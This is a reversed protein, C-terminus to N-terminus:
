NRLNEGPLIKMDIELDRKSALTGLYLVLVSLTAALTFLLPPPMPKAWVQVIIELDVLIVLSLCALFIPRQARLALLAVALPFILVSWDYTLLRPAYTVLPVACVVANLLHWQGPLLKESALRWVCALNIIGFLLTIGYIAAKVSMRQEAPFYVLLGAPLSGVLHEPNRVIGGSYMAEALRLSAIWNVITDIDSAFLCAIALFAIGGVIGLLTQPRKKVLASFTLLLAIPFLQPKLCLSSWVLGAALDKGKAFLLCGASLPLFGLILDLQGPWLTGFIPLFAFSYATLMFLGPLKSRPALNPAEAGPSQIQRIQRVQQLDLLRCHAIFSRTMALGAILAIVNITQWLLLGINAPLGAFPIFLYAVLPCYMFVAVIDKSIEPLAQHTIIDFPAGQFSTATTPPYLLNIKHEVALRGAIHFATHYDYTLLAQPSLLDAAAMLALLSLMWVVALVACILKVKLKPQSLM